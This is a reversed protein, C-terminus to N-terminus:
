FLPKKSKTVMPPKFYLPEYSVISEFEKNRYKKEAIEYLFQASLRFPMTIINEGQFLDEAKEVGTGCAVYMGQRGIEVVSDPSLIVNSTPLVLDLNQNYFCTYVEMRRADIMPAYFYGPFAKHAKLAIGELTSVAILPIDLGYCLGKATSAGVRLGTYSGPGHSIAVADLEKINRKSQKLVESIFLTIRRTHSFAENDEKLALIKGGESLCVSCIESSTELNLILAM